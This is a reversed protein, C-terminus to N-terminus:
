LEARGELTTGRLPRALLAALVTHTGGWRSPPLPPGRERGGIPWGRSGPRPEM